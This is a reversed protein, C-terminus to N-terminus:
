VATGTSDGLAVSAGTKMSVRWTWRGARDPAFHVRWKNGSTASSTAANDDAAFYGPVIYRPAGSEHTFTVELRYDTFPIPSATEASEPGDFTLTVKHWRRLEGSVVPGGAAGTRSQADLHAVAAASGLFLLVLFLRRM